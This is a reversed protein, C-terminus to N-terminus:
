VIQHGLDQIEAPLDLSGELVHDLSHLRAVRAQRIPLQPHVDAVFPPSRVDVFLAHDELGPLCRDGPIEPEEVGHLCDGVV